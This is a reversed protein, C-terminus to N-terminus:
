HGLARKLQDLRVGLSWSYTASYGWIMGIVEGNFNLIPSGSSGPKIEVQFTDSQRLFLCKDIIAICQDQYPIPITEPDLLDLPLLAEGLRYGYTTKRPGGLPHGIVTIGESPSIRDALNLAATREEERIVPV